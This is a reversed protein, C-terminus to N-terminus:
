SAAEFQRIWRAFARDIKTNIAHPVLFRHFNTIGNRRLYRRLRSLSTRRQQAGSILAQSNRKRTLNRKLRDWDVDVFRFHHPFIVEPLGDFDELTSIHEDRLLPSHLEPEVRYTALEKKDYCRVLKESKRGGWYLISNEKRRSRRSKGFVAHRRVFQRDVGMSPSFDIAVEIILFRYFRCHGLVNDIQEYSLGTKDDAVITIKWPKLWGKLREYQWYIKTDDKLSKYQRCRAYTATTTQCRVFCDRTIAFGNLLPPKRGQPAWSVLQVRDLRVVIKSM